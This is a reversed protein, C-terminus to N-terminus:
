RGALLRRRVTSLLWVAAVAGILDFALDDFGAARGPLTSQHWEDAAGVLACAAIVLLGHRAGTILWALAALVFFLSAHALKDWPARFLGVAYPQAGHLFLNVCVGIALVAALM